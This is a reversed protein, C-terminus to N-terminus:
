QQALQVLTAFDKPQTAALESLMKRNLSIGKQKLGHMFRSYSLGLEKTAASIRVQWLQRFDRKKLKRGIYAYLRAEDLAEKATKFLRHRGGYYGKAQKLVKKHRRRGKTGRRVRAM